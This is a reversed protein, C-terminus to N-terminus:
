QQLLFFYLSFQSSEFVNSRTTLISKLHHINRHEKGAPVDFRGIDEITFNNSPNLPHLRPQLLWIEHGEELLTRVLDNPETPLWYSDSSYGNLLLVPYLQKPGELKSSNHTCKRQRCSITFGDETKIEHLTSSPYFKHYLDKPPLGQPEGTTETCFLNQLTHIISSM